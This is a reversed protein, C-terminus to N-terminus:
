RVRRFERLLRSKEIVYLGLSDDKKYPVEGDRTLQDATWDDGEDSILVFVDKIGASKSGITWHISQWWQGVEPWACFITNYEFRNM